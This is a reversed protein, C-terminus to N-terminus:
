NKWKLLVGIRLIRFDNGVLEEIGFNVFGDLDIADSERWSLRAEDLASRLIMQAGVRRNSLHFEAIQLLREHDNLLAFVVFDRVSIDDLELASCYDVVVSVADTPVAVARWDIVECFDFDVRGVRFIRPLFHDCEIADTSGVISVVNAFNM